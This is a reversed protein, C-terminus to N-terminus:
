MSECTGPTRGGARGASLIGGCPSRTPTSAPTPTPPLQLFYDRAKEVFNQVAYGAVRVYYPSESSIVVFSSDKEDKAGVRLTSTKITGAQDRTKVTIVASPAKLGYADQEMKGLPARCPWM